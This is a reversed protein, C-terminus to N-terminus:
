RSPWQIREESEEVQGSRARRGFEVRPGVSPISRPLIVAGGETVVGVFSGAIAKASSSRGIGPM